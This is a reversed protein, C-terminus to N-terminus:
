GIATGTAAGTSEPESETVTSENSDGKMQQAALVAQMTRELQDMRAMVANADVPKPPEYPILQYPNITPYGAGDTMIIYVLPDNQDMVIANSNPLMMSVFAQAGQMGNVEPIEFKKPFGMPVTTRQANGWVNPNNGYNQGNNNRPFIPNNQM